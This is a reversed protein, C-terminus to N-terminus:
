PLLVARYFRYPLNTSTIDTFYVSTNSLTVTELTNWTGLNTSVQIEYSKGPAGQLRFQFLGSALMTGDALSPTPDVVGLVALPSNPGGSSNTVTLTASSSTASGASNEVICRFTIGNDGSVLHSMTYSASAAGPINVGNTQWQYSPVPIGSAVVTFTASGGIGNTQSQPQTTIAPAVPAAAVTLIANSSTVSGASNSVVVSFQAGNDGLVEPPTTYSPGTAGSIAGSNKRWQYFPAPPGAALVTFTATGGVLVAQNQPQTAITPRVTATTLTNSTIITNDTNGSSNTMFALVSSDYSNNNVWQGYDCPTLTVGVPLNSLINSQMITETTDGTGTGDSLTSWPYSSDYIGGYPVLAAQQAGQVSPVLTNNGSVTNATIETCYAEVDYFKASDFRGIYLGIGSCQTYRSPGTVTNGTM